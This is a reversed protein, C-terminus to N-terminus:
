EDDAPAPAIERCTCPYQAGTEDEGDAICGYEGEHM